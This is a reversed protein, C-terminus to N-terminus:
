CNLYISFPSHLLGFRRKTPAGVASFNECRGAGQRLLVVHVFRLEKMVIESMPWCYCVHMPDLCFPKRALSHYATSGNTRANDSTNLFPNHGVIDRYYFTEGLGDYHGENSRLTYVAHHFLM